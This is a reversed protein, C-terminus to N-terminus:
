LHTRDYDFKTDYLMEFKTDYIRKVNQVKVDAPVGTLLNYSGLRSFNKNVLSNSAIITYDPLYAGKSITTRNGIWCYDGIYIPKTLPKVSDDVGL